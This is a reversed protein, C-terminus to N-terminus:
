MITSCILWCNLCIITSFNVYIAKGTAQKQPKEFMWSYELPKQMEGIYICASLQNYIVVCNAPLTSQLILQKTHYTITLDHYLHSIMKIVLLQPPASASPLIIDCSCYSNLHSRHQQVIINYLLITCCCLLWM